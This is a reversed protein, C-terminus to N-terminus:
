KRKTKYRDRQDFYALSAYGAHIKASHKVGKPVSFRDGKGYIHRKGGIFIEAHGELVIEWQSAHSHEPVDIDKEFEMFVIQHAESQSIFARAGDLPLDAEPMKRLIDPFITTM